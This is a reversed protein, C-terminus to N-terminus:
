VACADGDWLHPVRWCGAYMYLYICLYHEVMEAGEELSAALTATGTNSHDNRTRITQDM